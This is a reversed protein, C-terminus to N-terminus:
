NASVIQAAFGGHFDATSLALKQLGNALQSVVASETKVRCAWIPERSLIDAEGTAIIRCIVQVDARVRDKAPMNQLVYLVRFFQQEGNTRVQHARQRWDEVTFDWICLRNECAGSYPIDDIRM